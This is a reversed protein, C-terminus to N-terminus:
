GMGVPGRKLRTAAIASLDHALYMSDLWHAEGFPRGARVGRWRDIKLDRSKANFEEIALLEGAWRHNYHEDLDDFYLAIRRLHPQDLIRLAPVTSSYYDLDFAVFGLPATLTTTAVTASVDGLVLTTRDTLKAQLADVDTPYDGPRWRDPHDRHDGIGRPLGAGSDFGYVYIKVGTEREVASAHAELALLGHGDAVGFEIVSIADREEHRAQDAAYLVGGLYQPRDVANWRNKVRVSVPLFRAGLKVVSRIPPEARLSSLIGV